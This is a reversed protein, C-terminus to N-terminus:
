PTAPEVKVGTIEEFVDQSAKHKRINLIVKDHKRHCSACMRQYDYVDSYNGTLNAWEFKKSEKTGCVECLSPTGRVTRVKYHAAGYSNAKFVGKNYPRSARQMEYRCTQSCFKAKDARSFVVEFQNRCTACCIWVNPNTKRKGPKLGLRKRTESMKRRVEEPRAKGKQWPNDMGKNWSTQGRQFQGNNM